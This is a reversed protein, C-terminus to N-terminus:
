EINLVRIFQVHDNHEIRLINLGSFNLIIKGTNTNGTQLEEGRSNYIKYDISGIFNEIFLQGKAPNPYTNLIAQSELDEVKTTIWMSDCPYNKFNYFVSDNEFCRLDGVFNGWEDCIHMGLEWDHSFHIYGEMFGIDYLIKRSVENRAHQITSITGDPLEYDSISDILIEYSQYDLSDYDFSPDCIPRYNTSYESTNNFDYLLQLFKLHHQYNYVKGEEFYFYKIGTGVPYSDVEYLKLGDLTITDVIENVVYSVQDFEPRFEYTWKTGIDWIPNQTQSKTQYLFVLFILILGHKFLRM